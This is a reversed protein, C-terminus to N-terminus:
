RVVFVDNVEPINDAIITLNITKMNEGPMFLIEGSLPHVNDNVNRNNYSTNSVCNWAVVITGYTGYKRLVRLHVVRDRAPEKVVIYGSTSSFEVRGYPNGNALINVELNANPGIM